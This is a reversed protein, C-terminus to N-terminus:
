HILVLFLGLNIMMILFWMKMVPGQNDLFKQFLNKDAENELLLPGMKLDEQFALERFTM